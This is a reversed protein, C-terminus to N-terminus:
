DSERLSYLAHIRHGREEIRRRGGLEILEIVFACEVIEAGLRELLALAAAATGGTALLDDIVLVREGRAVADDHIELRGTGYELEYEHGIAAAPLKGPKRFPVFGAHLLQAVAAGFIFGRAEIGAVKDVRGAYREGLRHTVARFGAADALLPTIDRFRIGPKPFDPVTRILSLPVLDCSPRGPRNGV